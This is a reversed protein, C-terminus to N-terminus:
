FPIITIQRIIAITIILIVVVLVVVLVVLTTTYGKTGNPVYLCKHLM